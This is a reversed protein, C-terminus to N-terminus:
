DYGPSTVSLALWRRLAEGIADIESAACRGVTGGVAERPVSVIERV